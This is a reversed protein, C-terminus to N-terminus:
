KFGMPISATNERGNIVKGFIDSKVIPGHIRSDLSNDYNDGMVFYENEKLVLKTDDVELFDSGGVIEGNVYVYGDSVQVENGPIGVIRKVHFEKHELDGQQLWLEEIKEYGSPSYAAIDEASKDSWFIIVDGIELKQAKKNIWVREGDHYTNMMSQGSVKGQMIFLNFICLIIVAIVLAIIWDLLIKLSKKIFGSAAKGEKENEKQKEESFFDEEDGFDIIESYEDENKFRKM